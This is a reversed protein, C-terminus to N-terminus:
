RDSDDARRACSYVETGDALRTRGIRRAQVLGELTSRVQTDSVDLFRAGLWWQRIGRLSDAADPHDTLYRVIAQALATGRAEESDPM